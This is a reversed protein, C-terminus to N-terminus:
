NDGRKQVMVENSTPDFIKIGSSFYFGGIENPKKTSQKNKAEFTPKNNM